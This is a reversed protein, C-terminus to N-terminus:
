SHTHEGSIDHQLSDGVAVLDAPAMSLLRGAAEYIIPSPKGMLHVQLFM